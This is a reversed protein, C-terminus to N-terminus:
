GERTVFAFHLADSRDLRLSNPDRLVVYRDEVRLYAYLARDSEGLMLRFNLPDGETQGTRFSSLANFPNPARSQERYLHEYQQYDRWDFLNGDDVALRYFVPFVYLDTGERARSYTNPNFLEPRESLATALARATGLVVQQQGRSLYEEMELIYRYGLWPL